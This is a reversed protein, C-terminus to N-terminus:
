KKVPPAPKVPAPPPDSPGKKLEAALDYTPCSKAALQANYAELQARDRGLGAARDTGYSSSGGYMLKLAPNTVTQLAQSASSPRTPDSLEARLQLIRVQMRGNLKKCDFKQESESLSYRGDADFTGVDSPKGQALAVSGPLALTLALVIRTRALPM